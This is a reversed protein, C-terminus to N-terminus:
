WLARVAIGGPLEFGRETSEKVTLEVVQDIKAFLLASAVLQEISIAPFGLSYANVILLGHEHNLINGCDVLLPALDEEFKWLEGEPGRGFAPPDMIIADYVNGRKIERAVFKKVDDVIWRIPKSALGSLEANRKGWNVVPKSSDLHVVEAGASAAALTTGGTYAFLNLVKMGPKLNERLYKWNSAQEPFLGTHKFSTPRIEFQLNEWSITWSTGLDKKFTWEGELGTRSYVAHASKWLEQNGVQGWIAQPEPRVFLVDGFRELKEFDGSDLLEYDQWDPATTRHLEMSLTM